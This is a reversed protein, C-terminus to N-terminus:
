AEGDLPSRPDRALLRQLIRRHMGLRRATVSVKHDSGAFVNLIYQRRVANPSAPHEPPKAHGRAPARLADEIEDPDVPKPLYDIDGVKVAAVATPINGYGSFIVARCGPYMQHLAAVVSLGDGAELRLDVLAYRLEFERALEIVERETSTTRVTFERAEMARGLRALLAADDELILLTDADPAM